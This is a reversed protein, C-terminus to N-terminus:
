MSNACIRWRCGSIIRVSSHAYFAVACLPMAVHCLWSGVGHHDGQAVEVVCFLPHSLREVPVLTQSHPLAGTWVYPQQWRSWVKDVQQHTKWFRVWMWSHGPLLSCSGLTWLDSDDGAAVMCPRTLAAAFQLDHSTTSVNCCRRNRLDFCLPRAVFDLDFDLPQIM